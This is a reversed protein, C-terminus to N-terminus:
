DIQFGKSTVDVMFGGGGGLFFFFFFFFLSAGTSRDGILIIKIDRSLGEVNNSNM